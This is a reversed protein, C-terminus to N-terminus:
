PLVFFSESLSALKILWHTDNVSSLFATSTGAGPLPMGPAGAFQSGGRPISVWTGTSKRSKFLLHSVFKLKYKKLYILANIDSLNLNIQPM